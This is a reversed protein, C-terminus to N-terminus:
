LNDISSWDVPKYTTGLVKNCLWWTATATVEVACCRQPNASVMLMCSGHKTSNQISNGRYTYIKDPWDCPLPVTYNKCWPARGMIGRKLDVCSWKAYSEREREAWYSQRRELCM